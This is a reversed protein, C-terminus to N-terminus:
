NKIISSIKYDGSEDLEAKVYINLEKPNTNSDIFNTKEFSLIWYISTPMGLDNWSTDYFYGKQFSYGYSSKDLNWLIGLEESPIYSTFIDPTEDLEYDAEILNILTQIGSLSPISPNSFNINKLSNATRSNHYDLIGLINNQSFLIEQFANDKWQFVYFTPKNNKLGSVIIEPTKNRDLDIYFISINCSPNIDLLSYAFENSKLLLEGISNKIKISYTSNTSVITLQDNEGDLDFDYGNSNEFSEISITEINKYYTNIITVIISCIIFTMIIFTLFIKKKSTLFNFM